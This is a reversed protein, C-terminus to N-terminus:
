TRLGLLDKKMQAIKSKSIGAEGAIVSIAEDVKAAVAKEQKARHDTSMRQASVASQMAKALEMVDKSGLSGNELIQLSVSKIMEAVLVTLDDPGETGLTKILEASMRRSEDLKRFQVTKRTSYRSFAGISVPALGRDALKSNLEERIDKQLRKNQRLEDLAWAIDGDAEEPLLDLYSLRGRGERETARM